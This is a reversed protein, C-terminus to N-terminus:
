DENLPILNVDIELIKYKKYFDEISMFDLKKYLFKDSYVYKGINAIIYGFSIEYYLKREKNYSYTNFRSELTKYINWFKLINQLYPKWRKRNDCYAISTVSPTGFFGTNAVSFCLLGVEDDKVQNFIKELHEEMSKRDDDYKKWFLNKIIQYLYPFHFSDTECLLQPIFDPFLRAEPYDDTDLLEYGETAEKFSAGAILKKAVKRCEKKVDTIKGYFCSPIKM